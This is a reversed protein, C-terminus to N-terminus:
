QNNCKVYEDKYIRPNNKNPTLKVNNYTGKLNSSKEVQLLSNKCIPNNPNNSASLLLLDPQINKNLESNSLNLSLWKPINCNSNQTPDCPVGGFPGFPGITDSKNGGEHCYFRYYNGNNNKQLKDCHLNYHLEKCNDGTCNNPAQVEYIDPKILIQGSGNFRDILKATLIYIFITWLIIILIRVIPKM